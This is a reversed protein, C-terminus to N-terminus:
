SPKSMCAYPQGSGHSGTLRPKSSLSVAAEVVAEVVVAEVAEEEVVAM